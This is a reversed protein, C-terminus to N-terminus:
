SIIFTLQEYCQKTKLSYNIKEIVYKISTQPVFNNTILFSACHSKCVFKKTDGNPFIVTISKGTRNHSTDINYFSLMKAILKRNVGYEKSLETMSKYEQTYKYIIEKEEKPNLKFKFLSLGAQKFKRYVTNENIGFYQATKSIDKSYYYYHYIEEVPIRSSGEFGSGILQINNAKLRRLVTNSGIGLKLATKNSSKEQLYTKIIFDSDYKVTVGGEGGFTRNYGNYYSNYLKIYEQEKDYMEKLSAATDILQLSFNEKGYKILAAGLASGKFRRHWHEEFREEITRTTVGVYKKNNCLNTILYVSYM